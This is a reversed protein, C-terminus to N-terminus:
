QVKILAIMGGPGKEQGVTRGAVKLAKEVAPLRNVGGPRGEVLEWKYTGLVRVRNAERGEVCIPTCM